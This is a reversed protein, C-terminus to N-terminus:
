LVFIKKLVKSNDKNNNGGNVVDDKGANECFM